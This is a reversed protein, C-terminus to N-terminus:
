EVTKLNEKKRYYIHKRLLKGYKSAAVERTMHKAITDLYTLNIDAIDTLAIYPAVEKDAHTTAFNATYRYKRILLRDYVEQISDETKQSFNTTNDIRKQLLDLSEDNFKSKIGNYESLLDQNKSGTIKAGSYFEKLKTEIHMVGPEAFFPLNDDISSTQGRDLFLFLLESEKLPIMTEFKSDGKIVISDLIILTSDQIKQLYLTGQSLGKINGTLYLNGDPTEKDNCAILILIGVGLLLLKKM